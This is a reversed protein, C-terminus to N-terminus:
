VPSLLKGLHIWGYQARTPERITLMTGVLVGRGRPPGAVAAAHGADATSAVSQGRRERAIDSEIDRLVRRLTENNVGLQASLRDLYLDRRVPDPIQAVFRLMTNAVWSRGDPSDMDARDSLADLLYDFLERAQKVFAPWADPDRRIFDDPDQGSPLEAVKLEMADPQQLMSVASQQSNRRQFVGWSSELSRLTANRGAPDGDLAMTVDTTLRRVLDVQRETLATGMSAVVNDYGHQHAMIADMYGEVIVAGHQRIPEKALHM